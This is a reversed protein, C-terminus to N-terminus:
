VLRRKLDSVTSLGLHMKLDEKFFTALIFRRQHSLLHNWVSKGGLDINYPILPFDNMCRLKRIRLLSAPSNTLYSTITYRNIALKRKYIYSRVNSYLSLSNQDLNQHNM